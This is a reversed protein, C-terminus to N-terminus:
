IDASKGHILKKDVWHLLVIFAAGFIFLGTFKSIHKLFGLDLSFDTLAVAVAAAIVFGIFGLALWFYQSRGETEELRQLVSDSFKSSLRFEPEHRLADFVLRYARSDKDTGNVRNKEMSLQLEEDRNEMERM